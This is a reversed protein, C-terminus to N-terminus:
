PKTKEMVLRQCISSLLMERFISINKPGSTDAHKYIPKAKILFDRIHQYLCLVLTTILLGLNLDQNLYKNAKHYQMTSAQHM